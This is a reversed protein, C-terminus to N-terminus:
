SIEGGKTSVSPENENIYSGAVSALHIWDMEQCRIEKLIWELIIKVDVGLKRFQYIGV